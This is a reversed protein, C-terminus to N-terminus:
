PTKGGDAPFNKRWEEEPDKGAKIWEAVGARELGLRYDGNGIKRLEDKHGALFDRVAQQFDSDTLEKEHTLIFQRIEKEQVPDSIRFCSQSKGPFFFSSSVRFVRFWIGGSERHYELTSSYGLNTEARIRIMEKETFPVNGLRVSLKKPCHMYGLSYLSLEPSRTWQYYEWTWWGSDALFPLFLIAFLILTRKPPLIRFHSAM